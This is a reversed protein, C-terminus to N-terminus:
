TLCANCDPETGIVSIASTELAGYDALTYCWDAYTSGSLRVVTGFPLATAGIYRVEGNPVAPANVPDCATVQYYYTSTTPCPLATASWYVEASAEEPSPSICSGTVMKTITVGNVNLAVPTTRSCVYFTVAGLVAQTATTGTACDTYEIDGDASPNTSSIQYNDCPIGEFCIAQISGEYASGCDVNSIVLPSQTTELTTYASTGTKRYKVRYKVANASATFSVTLTAM